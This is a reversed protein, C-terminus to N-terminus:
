RVEEGMSAVVTVLRVVDLEEIDREVPLQACGNAWGGGCRLIWFDLDDIRMLSTEIALKM